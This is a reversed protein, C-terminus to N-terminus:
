IELFTLAGGVAGVLSGVVAGPATGVCEGAITLRLELEDSGLSISPTV